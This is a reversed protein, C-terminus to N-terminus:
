LWCCLLMFGDCTLIPPPQPSFARVTRPSATGTGCLSSSRCEAKLWAACLLGSSRAHPSMGVFRSPPSPRVHRLDREVGPQADEEEDGNSADPKRAHHHLVSRLIWKQQCTALARPCAATLAQALSRLIPSSSAHSLSVCSDKAILKRACAVTLTLRRAVAQQAAAATSSTVAIPGSVSVGQDVSPHRSFRQSQSRRDAAPQAELPEEEGKFVRYRQQLATDYPSAQLAM